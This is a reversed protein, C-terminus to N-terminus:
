GGSPIQDSQFDPTAHLTFRPDRAILDRVAASEAAFDHPVHQAQRAGSLSQSAFFDFGFLGIRAAHSRALLDIMQMGTTPRAGLRAMLAQQGAAPLLAFRPDRAIRWPLRKRKPTVWVLRRPARAAITAADVPISMALWDTRSGHSVAGPLPAANLRIVLDAADIQAGQTGQALARANGVLAVSRGSLADMLASLPASLRLLAGEDNRLRALLFGLRTM